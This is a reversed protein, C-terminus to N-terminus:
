FSKPLLELRVCLQLEDKLIRRAAVNHVMGSM